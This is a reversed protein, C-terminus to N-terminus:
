RIPEYHVTSTRRAEIREVGPLLKASESLVTAAYAKAENTKLHPRREVLVALEDASLAAIFAEADTISLAEKRDVYAVDGAGPVTVTKSKGVLLQEALEKIQTELWQIQRRKPAVAREVEETIMALWIERDDIEALRQQAARMMGFVSRRVDTLLFSDWAAIDEATAGDDEDVSLYDEIMEDFETDVPLTDTTM